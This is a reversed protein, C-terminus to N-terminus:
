VVYNRTLVEVKRKQYDAKNNVSVGQEFQETHWGNRATFEKLIASPYSSLLFKGKVGELVKLLREYDDETYGDYHGCNSGVYPPDCYFFSDASDRSQIVYLADTCELQVNQLRIAYDETFRERANAIKKTTTNNSRDYGWSNYSVASAKRVKYGCRGPESWRMSYTRTTIFLLRM